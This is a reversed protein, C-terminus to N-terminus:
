GRKRSQITTKKPKDLIIKSRDAPNMGFESAASAFQKTFEAYAIRTDRDLPDDNLAKTASRLLAWSECLMQLRPADIDAAIGM